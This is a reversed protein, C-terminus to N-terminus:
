LKRKELEGNELHRLQIRYRHIMEIFHIIHCLGKAFFILHWRNIQPLNLQNYVINKLFYLKLKKIYLNFSSLAMKSEIEAHM